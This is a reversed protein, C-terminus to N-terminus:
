VRLLESPVNVIEFTRFTVHSFRCNTEGGLFWIERISMNRFLPVTKM